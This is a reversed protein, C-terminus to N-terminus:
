CRKEDDQWCLQADRRQMDIHSKSELEVSAGTIVVVDGFGINSTVNKHEDDCKKSKKALAVKTAAILPVPDLYEELREILGTLPDCRAVLVVALHVPTGEVVLRSTHQEVFGDPYATLRRDLYVPLGLAALPGNKASQKFDNYSMGTNTSASKGYRDVIVAGPAFLKEAGDWDGNEFSDFLNQANTEITAQM